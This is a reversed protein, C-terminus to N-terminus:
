LLFLLQEQLALSSEKMQDNGAIEFNAIAMQIFFLSANFSKADFLIRSIKDQFNGLMAPHNEKAIIAYGELYHFIALDPNGLEKNSAGLIFQLSSKSLKPLDQELLTTAEVLAEEYLGDNLYKLAQNLPDTDNFADPNVCLTLTM